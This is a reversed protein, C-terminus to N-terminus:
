TRPVLIEVCVNAPVCELGHWTTYSVLQGMLPGKIMHIRKEMEKPQLILSLSDLTGVRPLPTPSGTFLSKRSLTVKNDNEFQKFKACAVM